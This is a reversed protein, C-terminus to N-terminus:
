KTWLTEPDIMIDGATCFLTFGESSDSSDKGTKGIHQGSLLLEGVSVDVKSLGTYWTRLGCGHDIVAFNGLLPDYGIYSVTGNQVARVSGGSVSTDELVYKNGVATYTKDNGNTIVSGHTYVSTFGNSLPAEFNGQFYVVASENLKTNFIAQKISNPDYGDEYFNDDTTFGDKELPPLVEISFSETSAGYSVTINFVEAKASESFPIVARWRDNYPKFVPVFNDRSSTFNLKEIDNVNSCDLFIFGGARVTDSSVSFASRNKIYVYFEYTVTGYYDRHNIQLWKAEIYIRITDNMDVELSSLAEANGTYLLKENSYVHVSTIDPKSDFSVDIAGTIEYTNIKNTTKNNAATLYQGDTTKYSWSVNKPTIVDLDATTLAFIQANDYFSEAYSTRLFESNLKKPISYYNDETDAYYGEGETDTSFYCLLESKTGNRDIEARVYKKNNTDEPASISQGEDSVLHYFIKLLPSSGTDDIDQSEEAILEDKSDYLKVSFYEVPKAIEHYIVYGAALLTPVALLMSVAIIFAIRKGKFGHLVSLFDSFIHKSERM